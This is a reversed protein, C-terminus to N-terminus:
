AKSQTNEWKIDNRETKSLQKEEQKMKIYQILLHWLISLAALLVTAPRLKVSCEGDYSSENSNYKCNVTIERISVTFFTRLFAVGDYVAASIKGYNIAANAADEDAVTFDILIESIYIGKLIRKLGKKSSVLIMKILKIKEKLDDKKRQKEAKARRKERKKEAKSLKKNGESATEANDTLDVEEIPSIETPEEEQVVPTDLEAKDVKRPKEKKPKKPKSPYLTLWLYKVKVDFKGGYYKLEAFVPFNLLIILVLLIGGIIYLAIM